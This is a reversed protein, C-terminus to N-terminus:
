FYFLWFSCFFLNNKFVIWFLSNERYFLIIKIQPFYYFRQCANWKRNFRITKCSLYKAIHVLIFYVQMKKGICIYWKISIVLLYWYRHVTNKEEQQRHVDKKKESFSKMSEQETLWALSFCTGISAYSQFSSRVGAKWVWDMTTTRIAEQSPIHTVM